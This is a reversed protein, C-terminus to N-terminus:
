AFILMNMQRVVTLINVKVRFAQVIENNEISNKVAYGIHPDEDIYEKLQLSFSLAGWAYEFGNNPVKDVMKTVQNSDNIGKEFKGRPRRIQWCM